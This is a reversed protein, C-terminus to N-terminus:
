AKKMLPHIYVSGAGRRKANRLALLAESLPEEPNEFRYSRTYKNCSIGISATFTIRMGHWDIECAEVAEKLRNAIPDIFDERMRKYAVIFEDDGFRALVDERRSFPRVIDSFRRLVEDGTDFGFERNITKLHDIDYLFLVVSEQFRVAEYV